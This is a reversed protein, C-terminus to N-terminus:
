NSCLMAKSPLYIWTPLNAEMGIKLKRILTMLLKIIKELKFGFLARYYFLFPLSSDLKIAKNIDREAREINGIEYSLMSSAFYTMPDPEMLAQHKQLNEYAKENDGAMIYLSSMCLFYDSNLISTKQEIRKIDTALEIKLKDRKNKNLSLDTIQESYKNEIYECEDQFNPEALTIFPFSTLIVFFM